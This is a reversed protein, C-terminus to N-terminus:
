EKQRSIFPPGAKNYCHWCDVSCSSVCIQAIVHWKDSGSIWVLFLVPLSVTNPQYPALDKIMTRATTQRVDDGAYVSASGYQEVYGQSSWGRKSGGQKRDERRRSYSSFGGCFNAMLCLASTSVQRRCLCDPELARPLVTCEETVTGTVWLNHLVSGATCMRM